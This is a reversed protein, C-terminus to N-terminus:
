YQKGETQGEYTQTLQWSPSKAAEYVNNLLSPFFGWFYKSSLDRSGPTWLVLSLNWDSRTKSASASPTCVMRTTVGFM